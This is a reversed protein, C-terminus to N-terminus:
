DEDTDELWEHVKDFGKESVYKRFLRENEKHIPSNDLVYKWAAKHAKTTNAVLDTLSGNKKDDESEKHLNQFTDFYISAAKAFVKAEKTVSEGIKGKESDKEDTEDIVEVTEKKTEAAM